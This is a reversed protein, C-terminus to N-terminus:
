TRNERPVRVIQSPHSHRSFPLNWFESFNKESHRAVIVMRACNTRLEWSTHAFTTLIDWSTRLFNASLDLFLRAFKAAQALCEAFQRSRTQPNVFIKRVDRMDQTPGACIVFSKLCTQSCIVLLVRGPIRSVNALFKLIKQFERRVLFSARSSNVVSGFGRSPKAIKQLMFYSQQVKCNKRCECGECITRTGRSFRVKPLQFWRWVEHDSYTSSM